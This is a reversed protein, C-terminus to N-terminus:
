SDVIKCIIGKIAYEPITELLIQDNVWKFLKFLRLYGM